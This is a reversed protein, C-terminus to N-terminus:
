RGGGKNEEKVGGEAIKASLVKEEMAAKSLFYSITEKVTYGLNVAFGLAKGIANRLEDLAGKKDIKIETYVMDSKADYAAIPIFGVKMPAIGLKGMVSAVKENIIDGEKAITAATVITLKGNEVKVKLGVSGLESIAPGPVLDTPGPEVDINEPAINGAKAKASSQSEVLTGALEFADLDSLMLAVDAVVEKKLNQLAGKEIGSIARLIISKKAVMVEAKGRLSKKIKQFQSSPLGKTSAILVTNAKKIKETIKEVLDKKYQPVTSIRDKENEEAM